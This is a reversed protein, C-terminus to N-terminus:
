TNRTIQIADYQAQLSTLSSKINTLFDTNIGNVSDEVQERLESSINPNQLLITNIAVIQGGAEYESILASLSQINTYMNNIYDFDQDTM